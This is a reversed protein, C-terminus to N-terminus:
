QQEKKLGSKSIESLYNLQYRNNEKNNAGLSFKSNNHSM